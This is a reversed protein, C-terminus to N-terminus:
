SFGFNSSVQIIFIICCLIFVLVKLFFVFINRHPKKTRKMEAYLGMDKDQKWIKYFVFVTIFILALHPYILWPHIAIIPTIKVREFRGRHNSYIIILAFINFWFLLAAAIRWMLISKDIAPKETSKSTNELDTTKKFDTTSQQEIEEGTDNGTKLKTFDSILNYTNGGSARITILVEIITSLIIAFVIIFVKVLGPM